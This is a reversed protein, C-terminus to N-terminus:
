RVGPEPRDPAEPPPETEPNRAREADRAVDATVGKPAVLPPKRTTQPPQAVVLAEYARPHGPAAKGAGEGVSYSDEYGGFRDSTVAAVQDSPPNALERARRRRAQLVAAGAIGALIAALAAIGVPPVDFGGGTGPGGTGSGGTDTGGTGVPGVVAPGGEPSSSGAEPSGTAQPAPQGEVPWIQLLMRQTGAFRTANGASDQYDYTFHVDGEHTNGGGEPLPHLDGGFTLAIEYSTTTGDVTTTLTETTSAALGTVAGTSPDYTGGTVTGDFLYGDDEIHCGGTMTGAADIRGWKPITGDPWANGDGTGFQNAYNGWCGNDTEDNFPSVYSVGPDVTIPGDLVFNFAYAPAQARATPANLGLPVLLLAALVSGTVTGVALLATRRM